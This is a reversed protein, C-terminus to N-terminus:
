ATEARLLHYEIGNITVAVTGVATTNTGTGSSPNYGADLAAPLNFAASSTEAGLMSRLKALYLDLERWNYTGDGNRDLSPNKQLLLKNDISM